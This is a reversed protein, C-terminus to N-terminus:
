RGNEECWKDFDAQRLERAVESDIDDRFRIHDAFDADKAIYHCHVLHNQMGEWTSRVDPCQEHPCHFDTPEPPTQASPKAACTEHHKNLEGYSGFGVRCWHCVYKGPKGPMM